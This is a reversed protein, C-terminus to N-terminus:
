HPGAHVGALPDQAAYEASEVRELTFQQGMVEPKYDDDLIPPRPYAKWDDVIEKFPNWDWGITELWGDDRLFLRVVCGGLEPMLAKTTMLTTTGEFCGPHVGVMQGISLCMNIHFHGALLLKGKPVDEESVAQLLTQFAQTEMGKQMRYSRAYAVGGVPHWMRVDFRDTVPIDVVNYGCYVFDDRANCMLRIPDVGNSRVSSWDHNGGLVYHVAGDLKPTYQDALWAQAQTAEHSRWHSRPRCEPITDEDQGKYIYMGSTMDGPHFFHRVGYREYARVHMQQYATPQSSRSGAHIDSLATIPVVNGYVEALPPADVRATPKISTSASIRPGSRILNWGDMQFKDLRKQITEPSRDFLSSLEGLTRPVDKIAAFLEPDSPYNPDEKPHPRTRGVGPTKPLGGTKRLRHIECAVGRESRGVRKAIEGQTLDPNKKVIEVLSVREADSWDPAKRRNAM